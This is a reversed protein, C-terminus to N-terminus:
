LLKFDSEHLLNVGIHLPLCFFPVLFRWVKGLQLLRDSSNGDSTSQLWRCGLLLPTTKMTKLKQGETFFTALFSAVGAVVGDM